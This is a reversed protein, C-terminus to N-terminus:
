IKQRRGLWIGFFIFIATLIILWWRILRTELVLKGDQPISEWIATNGEIRTANHNTIKGPLEFSFKLGTIQGAMEEGLDLNLKHWAVFLLDKKSFNQYGLYNQSFQPAKIPVGPETKQEFLLIGEKNFKIGSFLNVSYNSILAVILFIFIILFLHKRM